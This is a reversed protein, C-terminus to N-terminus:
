VKATSIEQVRDLAATMNEVFVNNVLSELMVLRVVGDEGAHVEM